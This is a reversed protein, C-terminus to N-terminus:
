AIGCGATFPSPASALDVTANAPSGVATFGTGTMQWTTSTVQYIRDTTRDGAAVVVKGSECRFGDGHDGNLGARLPSGNVVRLQGTSTLRAVGYNRTEGSSDTQVILEGYGDGDIDVISFTFPAAVAPFTVATSGFMSLAVRVTSDSVTAPDRVGDGDVDGAMAPVSVPPPLTPSHVNSPTGSPRSASATPTVGDGPNPSTPSASTELRSPTGSPRVQGGGGTGGHGPPQSAATRVATVEPTPQTLPPVTPEVLISPPGPEIAVYALSILGALALGGVTTAPVRMRRRRIIGARIREYGAPSARVPDVAETLLRRLEDPELATM